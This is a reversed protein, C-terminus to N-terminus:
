WNKLLPILSNFGAEFAIGVMSLHQYQPPTLIRKSEEVRYRNVKRPNSAVIFALLFFCGSPLIPTLNLM